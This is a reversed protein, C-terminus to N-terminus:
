KGRTDQFPRIWAAPWIGDPRGTKHFKRLGEMVWNYGELLRTRLMQFRTTGIWEGSLSVGKAETWLDIISHEFLNNLSTQTQRMVDIYKWLTTPRSVLFSTRWSDETTKGKKDEPKINGEAIVSPRPRNCVSIRTRRKRISRPKPIKPRWNRTSRFDGSWGVGARLVYGSFLGNLTTKWFQHVRSKDKATIPIYKVLTGFPISPGDFKQCCRKEFPTKGDAMKDHVHGLLCFCEM